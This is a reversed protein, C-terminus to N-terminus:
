FYKLTVLCIVYITREWLLIIETAFDLVALNPFSLNIIDQVVKIWSVQLDQVWLSGPTKHFVTHLWTILSQIKFCLLGLSLNQLCGYIQYERMNFEQSQM